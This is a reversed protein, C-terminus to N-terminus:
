PASIPGEMRLTELMMRAGVAEVATWVEESTSGVRVADYEPLAHPRMAELLARTITPRHAEFPMAGPFSPAFAAFGVVDGACRAGLFVRGGNSRLSDIKGDFMSTPAFASTAAEVRAEDEPAVIFTEIAEELPLRDVDRWAIQHSRSRAAVSMGHREYLRIAVANDPKVNLLWRTCGAHRGRTAIERMLAGGVGRRQATSDVVVHCVRAVDRMPLWFAYAIPIADECLFFTTARIKTEYEDKKPALDPVRLELFLREFTAYDDSKANRVSLTMAASLRLARAEERSDGLRAVDDSM